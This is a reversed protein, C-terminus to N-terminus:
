WKRGCSMDPPAPASTRNGIAGLPFYQQQALPVEGGEVPPLDLQFRAENPAVISAETGDRLARVKTAYDM